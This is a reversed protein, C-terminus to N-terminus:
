LDNFTPSSTTAIQQPLSLTISGPANSIIVEDTTGTITNAIPANGSQGIVIQGNNLIIDALNNSTDIYAISNADLNPLNLSGVILSDANIISSNLLDAYGSQNM